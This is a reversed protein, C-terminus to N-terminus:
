LTKTDSGVPAVHLAGQPLSAVALALLERWFLGEATLGPAQPQGPTGQGLSLREVARAGADAGPGTM